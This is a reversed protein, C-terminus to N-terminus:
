LCVGVLALVTQAVRLLNTKRIYRTITMVTFGPTISLHAKKFGQRVNRSLDNTPVSIPTTVSSVAMAHYIAIANSRARMVRIALKRSAHKASRESSRM